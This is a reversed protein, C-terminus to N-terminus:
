WLKELGALDLGRALAKGLYLANIGGASAGALVDVVFKSRPEKAPEEFWTRGAGLHQSIRRYIKASGELDEANSSATARVLQLLERAIGFMYIALSVGGYLVLSFRVEQEAM